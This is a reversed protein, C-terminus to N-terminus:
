LPKIYKRKKQKRKFRVFNNIPMIPNQIKKDLLKQYINIKDINLVNNNITNYMNLYKQEINNISLRLENCIDRLCSTEYIMKNMISNIDVKDNHSNEVFYINYGDDFCAVVNNLRELKIKPLIYDIIEINNYETIYKTMYSFTKGANESYYYYVGDDNIMFIYIMEEFVYSSINEIKKRIVGLNYRSLMKKSDLNFIYNFLEEKNNASSYLLIYIKGRCYEVSKFTINEKSLITESSYIKENIVTIFNLNKKNGQQEECIIGVNDNHNVLMYFRNVTLKRIPIPKSFEGNKIYQGSLVYDSNNKIVYFVWVVNHIIITKIKKNYYMKFKSRLIEFTRLKYNDFISYNINGLNDQYAIHFINRSDVDVYIDSSTDRKISVFKSWKKNELILRYYIGGGEKYKFHWIDKENLKFLYSKNDEM